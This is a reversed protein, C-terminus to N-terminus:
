APSPERYFSIKEGLKANYEYAMKIYIIVYDNFYTLSFIPPSSKM